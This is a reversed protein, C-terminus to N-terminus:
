GLRNAAREAWRKFATAVVAPEESLLSTRAWSPLSSAAWTSLAYRLRSRTNDIATVSAEGELRRQENGETQWRITRQPHDYTYRVSYELSARGPMGVFRVLVPRRESDLDLIQVDAVGSVWEPVRRIDCLLRYCHDASTAIEVEIADM